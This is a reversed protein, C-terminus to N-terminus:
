RKATLTQHASASRQASADTRAAGHRRREARVGCQLCAYTRRERDSTDILLDGRCRPCAKLLAKM